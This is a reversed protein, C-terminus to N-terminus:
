VEIKKFFFTKGQVWKLFWLFLDLIRYLDAVWQIINVIGDMPAKGGQVHPERNGADSNDSMNVLLTSEQAEGLFPSWSSCKLLSKRCQLSQSINCLPSLMQSPYCKLHNNTSQLKTHIIQMYLFSLIHLSGLFMLALIDLSM